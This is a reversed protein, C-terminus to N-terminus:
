PNVTVPGASGWTDFTASSGANRVWVQITYQGGVPPTWVFTSAASWDQGITWTSGNYVWFRYTYPGTGGVAGASWNVTTGANIPFSRNAVLNTMRLPEPAGAVFPASGLWADYQAGSGANRAWVQVTYTGQAPPVWTWTNSSSWDQGVSWSTGNFVYFKYTYPATGGAATATWTVPTGAPVSSAQNASLGTVTLRSLVVGIPLPIPADTSAGFVWTSSTAFGTSSYRVFWQGTSPRWLALDAKGDGDFDGPVPIDSSVGFTYNLATGYSFGGTSRLIYWGGNSPRYLVVDSASDGDFDASLPIDGAQGWQRAAYGVYGTSSGKAYRYGTSPRFVVLDAKGDADGDAPVPIDGPAGWQAEWYGGKSYRVVWHGSSPRYVVLDAKGDGDFDEPIPIDGPAGWQAAWSTTATKVFWYGNSPRYVAVDTKGDGDYDAPVPMDGPQGWPVTYAGANSYNTGSTLLFWVGTGPRYITLDTRYDGDFDGTTPLSPAFSFSGSGGTPLTVKVVNSRELVTLRDKRLRLDGATVMFGVEDGVKPVYDGMQGWPSGPNPYIWDGYQTLLPAGTWDRDKWFEHVAAGHWTGGMRVFLWLTYRLDGAPPWMIFDPWSDANMAPNYPTLTTRVGVDGQSPTGPRLEVGTITKKIPWASVDLSAHYVVTKLDIADRQAFAATAWLVCCLSLLCRKMMSGSM